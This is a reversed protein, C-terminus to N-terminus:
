LAADMSYQSFPDKMNRVNRLVEVLQTLDNLHKRSRTIWHGAVGTEDPCM